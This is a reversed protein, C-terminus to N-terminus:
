FSEPKSLRPDLGRKAVGVMGMMELSIAGTAAAGVLGEEFGFSLEALM